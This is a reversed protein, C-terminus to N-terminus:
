ASLFRGGQRQFLLSNTVSMSKFCETCMDFNNYNRKEINLKRNDFYSRMKDVKKYISSINIQMRLIEKDPLKEDSKKQLQFHTQFHKFLEM